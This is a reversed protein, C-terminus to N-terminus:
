LVGLVLEVTAVGVHPLALLDKAEVRRSNTRLSLDSKELAIVCLLDQQSVSARLM